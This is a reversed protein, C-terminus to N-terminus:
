AEQTSWYPIGNREAASHLWVVTLACWLQEDTGRLWDKYNPLRRRSPRTQSERWEIRLHGQPMWWNMLVSDLFM